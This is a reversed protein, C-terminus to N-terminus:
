LLIPGIPFANQGRTEFYESLRPQDRGFLVDGTIVFVPITPRRLSIEEMVVAVAPDSRGLLTSVIAFECKISTAMELLSDVQSASFGVFSKCEAVGIRRGLRVLLDVDTMVKGARVIELNACSDIVRYNARLYNMLLFTAVQGQDYARIVLRNLKYADGDEDVPMAIPNSCEVCTVAQAIHEIPLWVFSRCHPCTIEKGRLLVRHDYLVQVISAFSERSNRTVGLRDCMKKFSLCVAPVEFAGQQFGEEIVQRLQPDISVDKLIKEIRESRLEPSMLKVLRFAREDALTKAADRGKENSLLRDLQELLSTKHTRQIALGVEGFASEAWQLLTPIALECWLDGTGPSLSLVYKSVGLKSFRTFRGPFSSGGVQMQSFMDWSSARVPFMLDPVGRLEVVVAGGMGLESFTKVAPHIVSIAAEEIIVEQTHEFLRWRDNAAGFRYEAPRFCATDAFRQSVLRSSVDDRVVFADFPHNTLDMEGLLEIPIWFMGPNGFMARMNWYYCLGSLDSASSVFGYRGHLFYQESNHNVEWISSGGRSGFGIDECIGWYSSGEGRMADTVATLVPPSAITVGTIASSLMDESPVDAALGFNIVNFLSHPTDDLSRSAYVASPFAGGLGTLSSPVNRFLELSTGFREIRWTDTDPTVCKVEFYQQLESTSRRSLNFAIDPDYRRVLEVTTESDLLADDPLVFNRAGDVEGALIRLINFFGQRDDADIIFLKRFPRVKTTVTQRKM